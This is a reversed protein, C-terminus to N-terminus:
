SVYRPITELLAPDNEYVYVFQIDRDKESTLRRAKGGAIPRIWINMRSEWPQLFSITQGDPSLDYGRSVPNKFFDRMPIKLPLAPNKAEAPSVSPGQAWAVAALATFSLFSIIQKKM